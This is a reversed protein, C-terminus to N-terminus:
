IMREQDVLFSFLVVISIIYNYLTCNWEIQKDGECERWTAVQVLINSSTWAYLICFEDSFRMM